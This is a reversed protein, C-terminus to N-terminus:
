RSGAQLARCFLRIDSWSEAEFAPPFADLCETPSESSSGTPPAGEGLPALLGARAPELAHREERSRGLGEIPGSYFRGLPAM